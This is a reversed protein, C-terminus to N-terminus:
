RASGGHSRDIVDVAAFLPLGRPKKGAVSVVEDGAVIVDDVLEGSTLV